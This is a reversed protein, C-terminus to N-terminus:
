FKNKLCISKKTILILTYISIKNKLSVGSKILCIQKTQFLHM